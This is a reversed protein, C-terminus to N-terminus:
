PTENTTAFCLSVNVVVIADVNTVTVVVVVTLISQFECRCYLTFLPTLPLSSLFFLMKPSVIIGVVILPFLCPLIKRKFEPVTNFYSEVIRTMNTMVVCGDLM